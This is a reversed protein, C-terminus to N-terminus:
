QGDDGIRQLEVRRNDARGAATRNSAIPSDPGYGRATMRSPSVGRQALYAMVALARERSLRMNLARSGTADTHGAVEIRVEPHAVLSEAVRDLMAYSEATLRSRGTEFNVGRLILPQTKGREVRFLVPCGVEDIQQGRPTGPCRDIGNYVGDADDDQPCGDGDVQAQAPTDPCRDLGDFVGDQDADLPCGNADVGAGAATSPCVDLGDVVGDGDADSPCGRSDVFAGAPTGPCSDLGDLVGDADGDMPCGDDRVLAGPPTDPCRDKKDRVLDGDQDRPPGGFAFVSLGIAGGINLVRDDATQLPSEPYYAAR